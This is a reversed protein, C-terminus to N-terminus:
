ITYLALIIDDFVGPILAVSSTLRVIWNTNLVVSDTWLGNFWTSVFAPAWNLSDFTKNLFRLLWSDVIIETVLCKGTM